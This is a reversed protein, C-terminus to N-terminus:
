MPGNAPAATMNKAAIITIMPVISFARAADGHGAELRLQLGQIAVALGTFLMATALGAGLALGVFGAIIADAEGGSAYFPYSPFHLADGPEDDRARAQRRLAGARADQEALIEALRALNAETARLKQEADKRRAHLGAIGAAEELM